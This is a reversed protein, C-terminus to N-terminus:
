ADGASRPWSALVAELLAEDDSRAATRLEAFGLEAAEAATTAGIAVAALDVVPRGLRDLAVRCARAASPSALVVLDAEALSDLEDDDLQRSRTAYAAQSIPHCGGAELAEALAPMPEEAQALLLTSGPEVRALLQAALAAGGLGAGVLEVELGAAELARASTPGIAALRLGREAEVEDFAALLAPVASASTVVLWDGAVLQELAALLGRGQDSPPGMEILPLEAAWAGARRLADVLGVGRGAPRTVLVRAGDLQGSSM